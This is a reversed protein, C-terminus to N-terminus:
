LGSGLTEIIEDMDAVTHSSTVTFRLRPSNKPCAPFIVPAVFINAKHLTQALRFMTEEAEFIVSLTGLNAMYSNQFLVVTQTRKLDRLHAELQEHTPLTGNLLRRGSTSTGWHHIAEVAAAM